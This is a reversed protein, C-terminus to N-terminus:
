RIIKLRRSTKANARRRQGNIPLKLIYRSGKYNYLGINKKIDQEVKRELIIDMFDQHSSLVYKVAQNIVNINYKKLKVRPNVGCILFIKNAISKNIGYRQLFLQFLNLNEIEQVKKQFPLKKDLLHFINENEV